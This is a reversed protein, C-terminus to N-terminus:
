LEETVTCVIKYVKEQKEPPLPAIKEVIAKLYDSSESEDALLEYPTVGLENAITVFTELRPTKVGRELVSIHKVSIGTRVALEEQTLGRAERYQQIRNGLVAINM